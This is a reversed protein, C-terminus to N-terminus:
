GDMRGDCCLLGSALDGELEISLLAAAVLNMLTDAISVLSDELSVMADAGVNVSEEVVRRDNLVHQALMHSLTGRQAGLTIGIKFILLVVLKGGM